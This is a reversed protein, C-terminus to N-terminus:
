PARKATLPGKGHCAVARDEGGASTNRRVSFEGTRGDDLVLRYCRGASLAALQAASLTGRWEGGDPTEDELYLRVGTALVSGDEDHIACSHVVM